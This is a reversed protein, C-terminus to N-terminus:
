LGAMRVSELAALRARLAAAEARAAAMEPESETRATLGDEILMLEADLAGLGLFLAEFRSAQVEAESALEEAGFARANGIAAVGVTRARPWRAEVDGIGASIVALAATLDDPLPPLAPAGLAAPPVSVAGAGAGASGAVDSVCGACAGLPVRPVLPSIENARPALSPWPGDGGTACGALVLLVTM